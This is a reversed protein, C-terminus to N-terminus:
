APATEPETTTTTPSEDAPPSDSGNADEGDASAEGSLLANAEDVLGRAENIREQFTALDGDALAQDAQAFLEDAEALLRAAEEAATGEPGESEAPPEEGEGEAEGEGPEDPVEQTEVEEAQPGFLAVLAEQLTDEIVVQDGFAAIVRELQPLQRSEAEPVVYFPQVYLPANDIPVLLLNGYLVESGGRGLETEDRSVDREAQIKGAAIGPGDPLDGPPMEYVVLQGYHGPDMRAAMFATLLQSQDDESFPVYPRMLVMEAESSVEGSANPLQLLQYYPAIRPAQAGITQGQENTVQTSPDAGATGPDRAVRWADDQNFFDDPDDLHYRAYAATQIRFLDEPYRLHAELEEPMEEDSFLDPFADRYAEIIPDNEDMVYFTVTGDYADVRAKVSNRVYNFRHDL